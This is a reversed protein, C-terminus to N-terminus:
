SSMNEKVIIEFPVHVLGETINKNFLLHALVEKIAVYGQREPNSGITCTIVNTRILDLIDPYTEFTVVKLTGQRELETIAKGMSSVKGCTIFLGSLDPHDVLLDITANFTIKRNEHTEIVPLLRVDPFSERMVDKFGIEREEVSFVANNTSLVGVKGVGGIFEGMLKAATRGAKMMDQGVFTVRGDSDMDSNVTVILIGADRASRMAEAIRPSMMTQILIADVEDRIATEIAEVQQAVDFQSITRVYLKCDFAEYEEIASWMGKSVELSSDVDLVLALLRISRRVGPENKRFANTNYSLDEIVKLIRRRTLESVGPRNHIVKDVTSRHVGAIEAIKLTTVKM